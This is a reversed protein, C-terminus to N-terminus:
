IKDLEQYPMEYDEEKSEYFTNVYIISLNKILSLENKSLSQKTIQLYNNIEEYTLPLIGNESQISFGIDQFIDLLSKFSQIKPFKPTIGQIQFELSRSMHHKHPKTTLYAM